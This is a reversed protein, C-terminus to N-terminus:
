AAAGKAAALQRLIEEAQSQSVGDAFRVQATKGGPLTINSVYTAGGGGGPQQTSAPTTIPQTPTNAEAAASVKAQIREEAEVQRRVKRYM